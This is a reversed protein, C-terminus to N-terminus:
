RVTCRCIQLGEQIDFNIGRDSVIINGRKEFAHIVCPIVSLGQFYSISSETGLFDAKDRELDMHVDAFCFLEHCLSNLTFPRVLLVTFDLLDM